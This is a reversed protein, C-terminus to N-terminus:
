VGEAKVWEILKRQSAARARYLKATDEWEKLIHPASTFQMVSECNKAVNEWNEIDENLVEIFRAVIPTM